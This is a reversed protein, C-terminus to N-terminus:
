KEKVSEMKVSREVQRVQWFFLIEILLEVIIIIIEDLEIRKM